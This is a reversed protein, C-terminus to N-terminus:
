QDIVLIKFYNWQVNIRVLIIKTNITGLVHGIKMWVRHVHKLSVPLVLGLGGLAGGLSVAWIRPSEGRFIVPWLGIILFIGGVMLGFRRLEKTDVQQAM